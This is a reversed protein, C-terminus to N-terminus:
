ERVGNLYRKSRDPVTRGDIVVSVIILVGEKLLSTAIALECAAIYRTDQSEDASGDSIFDRLHVGDHGVRYIKPM